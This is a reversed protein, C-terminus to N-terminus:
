GQPLGWEHDIKIVVGQKKLRSLTVMIKRTSEGLEEAITKAPLKGHALLAKIKLRLPLGAQAEPVDEVPARNLSITGDGFTAKFGLPPFLRSANSKRHLLAIALNDEDQDGRLEWISRAYVQFFITGYISKQKIDEKSTHALILSTTNLQRLATFFRLAPEAAMLDGGCAAGLSDIIVLKAQSDAVAQRVAPLDDALALACRRYPMELYPLAFGRQLCQLRWGIEGRTTEWDLYLVETPEERPALGLPNDQWRLLILLACALAMSSKGAGPQGFFVTPQGEALLPYLLYRPKEIEDATTLIVLPEGTRTRALTEACLYELMADWPAKLKVGLLKAIEARSRSASLNLQAQHLHPTGLGTGRVLVEGTTRGDRHERLRTVSITTEPWTFLYGGLIEMVEPPMVTELSYRYVSEVTAQIEKLPMPPSCKGAWETLLALTIDQPHLNRFYGALRTCTANRQGERAGLLAKTVWHPEAQLKQESHHLLLELLWTPPLAPLDEIEWTYNGGSPHPSPPAVVYGGEGKIDVGPLINPHNPQVGKFYYHWGGGGTRSILTNPMKYSSIDGGNRPDVDLVFIGSIAGTVIGVGATPYKEFWSKITEETARQKQYLEWSVLPLKGNVPIVSFGRAIYELAAEQIAIKTAM